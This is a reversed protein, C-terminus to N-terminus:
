PELFRRLSQVVIEQQTTKKRSQENHEFVYRKLRKAVSVPVRVYLSTTEEYGDDAEREPKGVPEQPEQTEALEAVSMVPRKAM